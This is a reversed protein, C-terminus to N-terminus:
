FRSSRVTSVVAGERALHVSSTDKPCVPKDFAVPTGKEGWDIERGLM